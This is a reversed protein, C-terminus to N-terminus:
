ETENYEETYQKTYIHITSSGGPTFGIAPLLIYRILYLEVSEYGLPQLHFRTNAKCKVVVSLYGEVM